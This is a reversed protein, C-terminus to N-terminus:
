GTFTGAAALDPPILADRGVTARTTATMRTPKANAMTRLPPGHGERPVKRRRPTEPVICADDGVNTQPMAPNTIERNACRKAERTLPLHCPRLGHRLSQKVALHRKLSAVHRLFEEKKFQPEPFTQKKRRLGGIEAKAGKSLPALDVTVDGGCPGAPHPCGARRDGPHNRGCRNALRGGHNTPSAMARGRPGQPPPPGESSALM